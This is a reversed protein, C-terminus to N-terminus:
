RLTLSVMVMMMQTLMTEPETMTRIWPKLLILHSPMKQTLSVMAMMMQTPTTEVGHGDTDTADCSETSDLPFADQIQFWDGDDDTDANNGNTEESETSDLPFADSDMMMRILMELEMTTQDVHESSDLPFADETDIVDDSDMMMQTQLM